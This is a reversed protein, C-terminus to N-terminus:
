AAEFMPMAYEAVVEGTAQRVIRAHSVRVVYGRAKSIHENCGGAAFGENMKDRWAALNAETARGWIKTNWCMCRHLGLDVPAFPNDHYEVRFTPKISRGM